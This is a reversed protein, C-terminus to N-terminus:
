KKQKIKFNEMKYLKSKNKTLPKNYIQMEIKKSQNLNTKQTILKKRKSHINQKSKKEKEQLSNMGFIM